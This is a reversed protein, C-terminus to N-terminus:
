PIEVTPVRCAGHKPVNLTHDQRLHKYLNYLKSCSRFHDALIELHVNLSLGLTYAPFNSYSQGGVGFGPSSPCGACITGPGYELKKSGVTCISIGYVAYYVYIYVRVNYKSYCFTGLITLLLAMRSDGVSRGPRFM